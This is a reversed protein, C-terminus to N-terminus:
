VMTRLTAIANLLAQRCEQWPYVKESRPLSSLYRHYASVLSPDTISLYQYGNRFVHDTLLLQSGDVYVSTSSPVALYEERILFFRQPHAEVLALYREMLTLRDPVELASALEGDASVAHLADDRERSWGRYAGLCVAGAALVIACLICLITTLTNKM